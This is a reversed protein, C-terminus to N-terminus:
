FYTVRLWFQQTNRVVHLDTTDGDDNYDIPVGTPVVKVLLSTGGGIATHYGPPGIGAPESLDNENLGASPQWIAKSYDPFPNPTDTVYSKMQFISNMVSDYNPKCNVYETGGHKLALNHGLEHM